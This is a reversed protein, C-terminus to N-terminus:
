FSSREQFSLISEAVVLDIPTTIKINDYSGEMLTIPNGALEAVTADDSVEPLVLSDYANKILTSQFTQPTQIMLFDERNVALFSDGKRQRLSDKMPVAAIAAGTKAAVEYSKLIISESVLPRVADHIAVLAHFPVLMLGKRVSETRTKGGITVEHPVNFDSEDTYTEWIHLGSDPLVVILSIDKSTKYFRELTHALIPKQLLSLFQKPKMAGMRSGSGGAVIVAFKKM